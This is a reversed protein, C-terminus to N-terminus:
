NAHGAASRTFLNDESVSRNSKDEFYRIAKKVMHARRQKASAGPVASTSGEGGAPEAAPAAAGDSSKEPPNDTFGAAAAADPPSEAPFNAM